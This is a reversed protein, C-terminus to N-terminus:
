LEQPLYAQAFCHLGLDSDVSKRNEEKDIPHVMLTSFKMHWLM